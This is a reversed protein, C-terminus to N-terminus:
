VIAVVRRFYGRLKNRRVTLLNGRIKVERCRGGRWLVCPDIFRTGAALNFYARSLPWNMM